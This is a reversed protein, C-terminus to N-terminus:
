VRGPLPVGLLGRVADLLSPVAILAVIGRSSLTQLEASVVPEKGVLVLGCGLRYGAELDSASDGILISRSFEIAPCAEKARLLLGPEPKRCRCTGIEHECAYVADIRGQHAACEQRMREHIESLTDSSMLGRAVGRQNTVVVIRVGARTLLGLSELAGPLFVFDEWRTVYADQPRKRNIVGDRDIFVTEFLM